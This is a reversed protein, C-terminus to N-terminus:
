LSDFFFESAQYPPVKGIIKNAGNSGNKIPKWSIGQVADEKTLQQIGHM